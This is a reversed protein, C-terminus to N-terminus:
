KTEGMLYERPMETNSLWAALAKAHDARANAADILVAKLTRRSDLLDMVGLAGNKFAFEAADAAKQAAPLLDTEFRQLRESSSDLDNRARLVDGLAQARVRELSDRAAYWDAQARAV